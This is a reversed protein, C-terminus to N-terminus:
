SLEGTEYNEGGIIIVKKSDSWFQFNKLRAPANVDDFSQEVEHWVLTPIHLRMIKGFRNFILYSDREIEDYRNIFCKSIAAKPTTEQNYLELNGLYNYNRKQICFAIHVEPEQLFPIITRQTLGSLKASNSGM